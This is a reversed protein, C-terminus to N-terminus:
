SEFLPVLAGYLASFRSRRPALRNQTEQDPAILSHVPPATCIDAIADEGLCLRALRAAGFAPGVEGGDRYVLSTNLTSALIRGWYPSRAGGGIVSLTDLRTGAAGLADLGDALGFAVGELVARCLDPGTTEGTLGFFVGMAGPNNHPTREGSLYPLFIEGGGGEDQASLATLMQPVSDQGTLRAVWDLCAAASLMVSMQHWRGPLAHCFAHVAGAVNPAFADTAAFIVGSTGLSLLAEGGAIVGAGVAGAANDGGGAAVPVRPLGLAAAAKATLLGTQESGECLRPMQSEELSCAALLPASWARKAVDVWLTGSADSLDSAAEGTMVLRLYDKPLLVLDIRGFAQPEHDRVWALKPATFGPMVLNGGLSHFRPESRTLAECEAACRGDNWLIAPRIVQRAKDLLVAGHMQGSLGVARVQTRLKPDLSGVAQLTATWWDAPNQESWLPHPRHIALAARGEGVLLGQDNVLVAKVGSTGLDIGLYM